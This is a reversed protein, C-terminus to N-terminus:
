IPGVEAEIMSGAVETLTSTNLAHGPPHTAKRPSGIPTGKLLWIIFGYIVQKLGNIPLKMSINVLISCYALVSFAFTRM